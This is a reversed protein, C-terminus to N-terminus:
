IAMLSSGRFAQTACRIGGYMKHLEGFELEVPKYGLARLRDSVFHDQTLVIRDRGLYLLNCGYNQQSTTPVLVVVWGERELYEQLPMNTTCLLYFGAETDHYYEDVLVNQAAWEWVVAVDNGVLGLYCDLHIAHMNGDEPHKVVAVRASGFLNRDMMERVGDMNTRNGIGIFATEGAPIYDGGELLSAPREITAVIPIDLTELASAVMKTEEHRVEEKFKGLIIGRKTCVMPDRTFVINGLLPSPKKSRASNAIQSIDEVHIGYMDLTRVLQKHQAVLKRTNVCEKFLYSTANKNCEKITPIHPSAVLVTHCVDAEDKCSFGYM